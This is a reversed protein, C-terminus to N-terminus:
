MKLTGMSVAMSTTRYVDRILGTANQVLRATSMPLGVRDRVLGVSDQILGVAVKILSTTANDIVSESLRVAGCQMEPHHLHAFRM